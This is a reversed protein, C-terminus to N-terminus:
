VKDPTKLVLNQLYVYCKGCFVIKNGSMFKYVPEELHKTKCMLCEM